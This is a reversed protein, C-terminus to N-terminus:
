TVLHEHIGVCFICDFLPLPEPSDGGKKRELISKYTKLKPQEIIIDELDIKEIVPAVERTPVVIPAPEKSKTEETTKDAALKDTSKDAATGLGPFADDKLKPTTTEQPKISSEKSLPALDSGFPDFEESPQEKTETTEPQKVDEGFPDTTEFPNSKKASSEAPREETKPPIPKLDEGFPDDNSVLVIKEASHPTTDATMVPPEDLANTPDRFDIGDSAFPANQDATVVTTESPRAKATFKTLGVNESPASKWPDKSSDLGPFEDNPKAASITTPSEEAAGLTPADPNEAVTETLSEPQTLQGQALYLVYFGASMVGVLSVLRVLAGM